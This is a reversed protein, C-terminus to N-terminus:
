SLSILGLTDTMLHRLRGNVHKYPNGGMEMAEVSQSDIIGVSSKPDRGAQIRV